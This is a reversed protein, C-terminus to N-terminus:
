KIEAKFNLTDTYLGVKGTGATYLYVTSSGEAGVNASTTGAAVVLIEAGDALKDGTPALEAPDGQEAMKLAKAIIMSLSSSTQQERGRM